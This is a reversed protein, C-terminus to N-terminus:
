QNRLDGGWQLALVAAVQPLTKSRAAKCEPTNWGFGWGDYSSHHKGEVMCTPKLKPLGKLWWCTAKTEEVGFWYPQVVQDPKRYHTSMIGVPNEIAVRPCKLNTFQM